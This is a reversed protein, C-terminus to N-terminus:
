TMHTKTSSIRVELRRMNQERRGLDRGWGRMQIAEQEMKERLKEHRNTSNLMARFQKTVFETLERGLEKSRGRGFVSM